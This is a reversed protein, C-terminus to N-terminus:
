RAAAAPCASAMSSQSVLSRVEGRVLPKRKFTLVIRSYRAHFYDYDFGTVIHATPTAVSHPMVDQSLATRWRKERADYQVVRQSLTTHGERNADLSAQIIISSGVDIFEEHSAMHWLEFIPQEIGARSEVGCEM